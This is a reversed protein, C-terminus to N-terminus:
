GSEPEPEPESEPEPEPETELIRRYLFDSITYERSSFVQISSNKWRTSFDLLKKWRTSFSVSVVVAFVVEVVVAIPLPFTLSFM